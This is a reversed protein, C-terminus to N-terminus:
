TINASRGVVPQLLFNIAKIKVNGKVQSNEHGGFMLFVHWFSQGPNPNWFKTSDDTIGTGSTLIPNWPQDKAYSGAWALVKTSGTAQGLRIPALQFVLANHSAANASQQNKWTAGQVHGSNKNTYFTKYGSRYMNTNSYASPESGVAKYVQAGLWHMQSGTPMAPSGNQDTRYGMLGAVVEINNGWGGSTVGNIPGGGDTDFVVELKLLAAEPQLLHSDVGPPQDIGADVAMKIHENRIMLKGKYSDGQNQMNTLTNQEFVLIDGVKGLTAGAGGSGNLVTWGNAGTPDLPLETFSTWPNGGGGGGGGAEPAPITRTSTSSPITRSM